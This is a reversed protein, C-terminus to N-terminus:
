RKLQILTTLIQDSTTISKSNAEFARQFVMLNVLSESLDATSLELTKGEITATKDNNTNYIASGSDSTKSYKNNGEAVLGRENNFMAIAVQGVAYTANDQTMMIVGSSDVSFDGFASDSIGLNDLRLQLSGRSSNQDLKNVIELFEADAGSNVSLTSSKNNPVTTGAGTADYAMNAVFTDGPKTNITEVVLNGNYNHAKVSQSMESHGNIADVLADIKSAEDLNGALTNVIGTHGADYTVATGGENLVLTFPSTADDPNAISFEIQGGSGATVTPLETTSWVDRQFGSGVAMLAKRASEVAGYGAGEVAGVVTANSGPIAAGETGIFEAVDGIIFEQGPILSEIVLVPEAGILDSYTNKHGEIQTFTSAAITATSSLDVQAPDALYAKLGAIESIKDALAQYTAIRSALVNDDEDIVGAASVTGDGDYDGTTYDTTAVKEVYAVMEKNGNITVYLQDSSASMRSTGLSPLGIASVQATSPSSNATPDDAYLKLKNAYETSLDEVETIKTNVTKYGLGSM